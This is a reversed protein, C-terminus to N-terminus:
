TGFERLNADEFVLFRSNGGLELTLTRALGAAAERVLRGAEILGTLAANGIGDHRAVMYGWHGDIM